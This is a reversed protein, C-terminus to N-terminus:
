IITIKRKTKGSSSNLNDLYHKIQSFKSLAIEKYYIKAQETRKQESKQTDESNFTIAGNSSNKIDGINLYRLYALYCIVEKISPYHIKSLGLTYEGKELIEQYKNNFFFDSHISFGLLDLLDVQEAEEIQKELDVNVGLEILTRIYETNILAM